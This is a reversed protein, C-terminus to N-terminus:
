YEPVLSPQTTSTPIIFICAPCTYPSFVVVLTVSLVYYFCIVRFFLFSLSYFSCMSCSGYCLLLLYFCVIYMSRIYREIKGLRHCLIAFFTLIRRQPHLDHLSGGSIPITTPCRTEAKILFMQIVVFCPFSCLLVSGKEHSKTM